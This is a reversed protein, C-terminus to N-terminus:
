FDRFTVSPIGYLSLDLAVSFVILPTQDVTCYEIIEM